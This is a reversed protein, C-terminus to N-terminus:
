LVDIRLEVVKEGDLYVAKLEASDGFYSSIRSNEKIVQAMILRALEEQDVEVKVRRKQSDLETVKLM